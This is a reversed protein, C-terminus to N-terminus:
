LIGFREGGEGVAKILEKEWDLMERESGCQTCHWENDRIDCILIDIARRTDKPKM